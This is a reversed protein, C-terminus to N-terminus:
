SPIFHLPFFHPPPMQSRFACYLIATKSSSGLDAPNRMWHSLFFYLRSCLPAHSLTQRFNITTGRQKMHVWADRVRQPHELNTPYMCAALRVAASVADTWLMNPACESQMSSSLTSPVINKALQPHNRGSRTKELINFPTRPCHSANVPDPHSQTCPSMTVKSAQQTQAAAQNLPKLSTTISSLRCGLAEM